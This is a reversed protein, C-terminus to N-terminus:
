LKKIMIACPSNYKGGFSSGAPITVNSYGGNNLSLETDTYHKLTRIVVTKGDGPFTNYSWKDFDFLLDGMTVGHMYVGKHGGISPYDGNTYSDDTVIWCGSELRPASLIKVTIDYWQTTNPEADAFEALTVPIANEPNYASTDIISLGSITWGKSTAESILDNVINYNDDTNTNFSFILNKFIMTKANNNTTRCAAQLISIISNINLKPLMNLKVSTCNISGNLYFNELTTIESYGFCDYSDFDECSTLDIGNITKLNECKYFVDEFSTVNKTDLVPVTELQTCSDFINDMKTVNSFNFKPITKLKKCSRFMNSADTVSSTDFLPVNTLLECGNLFSFMNTVKSTDFVPLKKISESAAFMYSMDVTNSTDFLPVCELKSCNHFMRSMNTVNSTDFLPVGVLSNYDKFLSELTTYESTNFLPCYKIWKNEALTTKDTINVNKDDDTLLYEEDQWNYHLNNDNYYGISEDDWGIAQLGAVDVNGNFNSYNESAETKVDVSATAYTKVDYIGNESIAIDGEVEIGSSTVKYKDLSIIM